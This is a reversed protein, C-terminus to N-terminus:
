DYEVVNEMNLLKILEGRNIEGQSIQELDSHSITNQPLSQAAWFKDEEDFFTQEELTLPMIDSLNKENEVSVNDQEAGFKSTLFEDFFEKISIGNMSTYTKIQKRRLESVEFNLRVKKNSSLTSVTDM